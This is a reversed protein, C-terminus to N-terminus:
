EEDLLDADDLEEIEDVELNEASPSAPAPALEARSRARRAPRELVVVGQKAADSRGKKGKKGKKEHVVKGEVKVPASPPRPPAAAASPESPESPAAARTAQSSPERRRAFPAGEERRLDAAAAAIAEDDPIGLLFSRDSWDGDGSWREEPSPQPPAAAIPEDDDPADFGPLLPPSLDLVDGNAPPEPPPAVVAVAVDDDVPLGPLLPPGLEDDDAVPPLSAEDDDAVPPLSAEDDDAVPPLSAEDDDVVPPLSAEDDDEVPPPSAEDLPSAVIGPAESPAESLAEDDDDLLGALPDLEDDGLPLVAGGHAEAVDEAANSLRVEGEGLEALVRLGVGGASEGAAGEGASAVEPESAPGREGVVVAEPEAAPALEAANDDLAPLDGLDLSAVLVDLIAEPDGGLEQLIADARQRAWRLVGEAAPGGGGLDLKWM